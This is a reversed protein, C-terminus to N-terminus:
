SRAEVLSGSLRSTTRDADSQLGSAQVFQQTAADWRAEPNEHPVTSCAAAPVQVFDSSKPQEQNEPVIAEPDLADSPSLWKIKIAPLPGQARLWRQVALTVEKPPQANCPGRLQVLHAKTSTTYRELALTAVREGNRRVTYVYLSGSQVADAYTGVCHHMAAGERYLGASTDIPVIDHDGVTAAPYWPPPFAAAHGDMGAAVAEHWEASLTTVTNLSMSSRFPRIVFQRSSGKARVWDALDSIFSCVEQARGGPIEPVHRAAWRGFEPNVKNFAWNVVLLWIRQKHTTAPLFNLFEPHQCFLDTALHAAGPKIHRMAMPINMVAAVDRLGAGCDVLHAAAGKRDVLDTYILNAAAWDFTAVSLCPSLHWHDSYVAMALVPFTETLQVARPSLAAARYIRERHAFTFRRAAKVADADAGEGIAKGILDNIVHLSLRRLGHYIGRNRAQQIRDAAWWRVHDSDPPPWSLGARKLAEHHIFQRLREERSRMFPGRRFGGVIKQLVAYGALSFHPGHPKADILRDPRLILASPPREFTHPEPEVGCSWAVAEYDFMDSVGIGYIGRGDRLLEVPMSGDETM